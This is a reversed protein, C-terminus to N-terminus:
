RVLILFGSEQANVPGLAVKNYVHEAGLADPIPSTEDKVVATPEKRKNSKVLSWWDDNIWMWFSDDDDLYIRSLGFKRYPSNRSLRVMLRGDHMTFSKLDAMPDDFACDKVTPQREWASIDLGTLVSNYATFTRTLDRYCIVPKGAEPVAICNVFLWTPNTQTSSHYNYMLYAYEGQTENEVIASNVFVM